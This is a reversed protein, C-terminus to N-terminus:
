KCTLNPLVVRGGLVSTKGDVSTVYWKGGVNRWINGNNDKCVPQTPLSEETNQQTDPSIPMNNTNFNIKDEETKFNLNLDIKKGSSKSILRIKFNKNWTKEAAIGTSLSGNETLFAILNQTSPKIKIYQKFSKIPQTNNQQQNLSFINILPYITGKDNVIEIEYIETPNSINGHYDICRITYYYKINPLLDDDIGAGSANNTVISFIKGKTFDAYSNPKSDLRFIQFAVAPEDTQYTLVPPNYISQNQAKVNLETIKLDETFFNIPLLKKLGTSTNCLIKIKKDVGIYPVFQVEPELPPYDRLRNTYIPTINEDEILYIIISLDNNQGIKDVMLLYYNLKYTYEKDYHIQTDVLNIKDEVCNPIVWEQIPASFNGGSGVFKQLRYGIVESYKQKKNKLSNNLDFLFNLNNNNNLLETIFSSDLVFYKNKELETFTKKELLNFLDVTLSNKFFVDSINNNLKHHTDFYIDTYFPFQEKFPNFNNLYKDLKINQKLNGQYYMYESDLFSIKSSTIPVPDINPDTNDFIIQELLSPDSLFSTGLSNFNNTDAYTQVRDNVFKYFNPIQLEPLEKTSIYEEYQKDLFNYELLAKFKLISADEYPFINLSKSVPIEVLEEYHSAFSEYSTKTQGLFTSQKGIKYM